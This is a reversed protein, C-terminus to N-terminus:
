WSKGHIINHHLVKNLHIFHKSCLYKGVTHIAFNQRYQNGTNINHAIVTMSANDFEESVLPLFFAFQDDSSNLRMGHIHLKIMDRFLHYSCHNPNYDTTNFVVLLSSNLWVLYDPISTIAPYLSLTHYLHLKSCSDLPSTIENDCSQARVCLCLQKSTLM